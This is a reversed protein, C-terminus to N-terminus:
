HGMGALLGLYFVAEAVQQVAGLCDGTYGGIRRLFFRALWLMAFAAALMGAAVGQWPLWGSLGVLLLPLLVTLAAICFERGSMHQALPKAKGEAKVYSLQWIL